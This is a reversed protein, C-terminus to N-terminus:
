VIRGQRSLEPQAMYSVEALGHGKRASPELALRPEAMEKGESICSSVDM